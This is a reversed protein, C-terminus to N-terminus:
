LDYVVRAAVWPYPYNHQYFNRVTRRELRPITAYSAGLVVQHKTDFFDVSYGTFLNTPVLGEHTDFVSTTWEWVGGNSGKGGNDKMGATAPMCHWNRFGTNAGEEYTVNYKDLFLRLEPETPLRGGKSRAYIVMDDFSTLVPWHQAIDMPVPGYMTRVKIEGDNEQIWSKPMAVAGNSERWYAEFEGNTVPRWEARFAGVHVTRAPSENDWGYERDLAQDKFEELFDDRESDDHGLVIEEPGLEVYSTDPKPIANWQQALAQWPPITFGPPPLTGTGARQLLMYLLTEIHFGEHEHTMVLTRAINRTLTRKGSNLDAYLQALRARVGNRFFLIADLSPWDEDKEPVESHNHCHDPDDVHPDIGREFINWFHKPETAEGGIAKSLLMDLFTPIHGIYFLCKHRLDIPKQHLMEQPIMQLTVMDWACWLTNWEELTPINAITNKPTLASPPAGPIFSPTHSLPLFVLTSQELLYYDFNDTSSCIVQRLGALAFTLLHNINHKPTVNFDVKVAGASVSYEINDESAKSWKADPASQGVCLGLFRGTSHKKFLVKLFSPDLLVESLHIGTTSTTIDNWNMDSSEASSMSDPTSPRMSDSGSDSVSSASLVPSSSLNSDHYNSGMSLPDSVLAIATAM